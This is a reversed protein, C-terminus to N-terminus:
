TKLAKTYAYLLQRDILQMMRASNGAMQRRPLTFFKKKTLALNKYYDAEKTKGAERLDYSKAWFFKRMKETVVIKVGENHARAYKRDNGIVVRQSNSSTIRWARKLAGSGKGVLIARGARPLQTDKWPEMRSDIWNQAVFRDKIFKLAIVGSRYPQQRTVKELAELKRIYAQLSM